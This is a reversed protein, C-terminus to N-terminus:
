FLGRSLDELIAQVSQYRNKPAPDLCLKLLEGWAYAHLPQVQHSQFAADMLMIAPTKGDFALTGSLMEFVVCGFSFIDTQVSPSAGQWLEPAM